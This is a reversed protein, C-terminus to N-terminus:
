ITAIEPTIELVQIKRAELILQLFALCDIEISLRKKQILMSIEWLSIDSCYLQDRKEAQTIFKKATTSLKEPTLADFILTCTDLIIM